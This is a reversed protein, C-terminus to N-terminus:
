KNKYDSNAMSAEIKGEQNMDQIDSFTPMGNFEDIQERTFKAPQLVQDTNPDVWGRNLVPIAGNCWSPPRITM